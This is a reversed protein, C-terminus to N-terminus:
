ESYFMKGKYTYYAKKGDKTSRIYNKMLIPKESLNLVTKKSDLNLIEFKGDKELLAYYKGQVERLSISDYEPKIVEKGKKDLLGKKDNKGVSYYEGYGSITNYNNSVKKISENVLFYTKGDESVKAVGNEDFSYAYKFSTNKIQKGKESYYSYGKDNRFLYINSYVKGTGTINGKIKTKLKRNKYVEVNKYDSSNKAYNDADIFVASSDLKKGLKVKKGSGEVFYLGKTSSCIVDNEYIRFGNCKKSLDSFKGDSIIAHGSSASGDYTSSCTNLTIVKKDETVNNACYHNKNKFEAIVKKTKTDFVINKGNYFVTAIEKIHNVTPNKANKVKKFSTILTGDYSYVDIKKDLEVIGFPYDDGYSNILINSSKDLEKGQSSLLVSENKTRARYLGNYSSIYDYKGPKVVEKGKTNILAYDGNKHQILAVKDVFESSQVYIFDKVKKGDDNFLAYKGESNRIFFADSYSAKDKYDDENGGKFIFICAVIAAIVILALIAILKINLKKKTKNEEM